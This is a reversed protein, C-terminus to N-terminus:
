RQHNFIHGVLYDMGDWGMWRGVRAVVGGAEGMWPEEVRVGTSQGRGGVSTWFAVTGLVTEMTLKDGRLVYVLVTPEGSGAMPSRGVTMGMGM